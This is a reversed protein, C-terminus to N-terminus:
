IRHPPNMVSNSLDPVQLEWFFYINLAIFWVAVMGLHPHKLCVPFVAFCLVKLAHAAQPPDDLASSDAGGSSGSVPWRWIADGWSCPVHRQYQECHFGPAGSLPVQGWAGGFMSKGAMRPFALSFQLVQGQVSGQCEGQVGVLYPPLQQRKLIQFQSSNSIKTHRACRARKPVEVKWLLQLFSDTTSTWCFDTVAAAAPASGWVCGSSFIGFLSELCYKPLLSEPCRLEGSAFQPGSVPLDLLRSRDLAASLPTFSQSGPPCSLSSSGSSSNSQARCVGATLM